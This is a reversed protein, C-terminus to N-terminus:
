FRGAVSAGTPVLGFQLSGSSEGHRERIMLYTTLGAGIAAIAFSADAALAFHEGDSRLTGLASDDLTVGPRAARADYINRDHVALWSFGAGLALAGLASAGAIYSNRHSEPRLKTLRLDVTQATAFAGQDRYPLYGASRVEIQHAGPAVEVPETFPATAVATGDVVLRAGTPAGVIRVLAGMPDLEAAITYDSARESPIAVRKDHFGTAHAVLVHAGPGVPVGGDELDVRTDDISLEATAITKIPVLKALSIDVEVAKGEHAAVRRHVTGYGALSAVVEHDGGAIPAGDHVTGDITIRAGSEAVRVTIPSPKEILTVEVKTARDHEVTVHKTWREFGPREVILKYDGPLMGKTCRPSATCFTGQTRSDLYVFAPGNTVALDLSSSKVGHLSAVIKQAARRNAGTAGADIYAQYAALAGEFDRMKLLLTGKLELLQLDKSASALGAEVLALAKDNDDDAALQAAQKYKDRTDDAGAYRSVLAVVVWAIMPARM